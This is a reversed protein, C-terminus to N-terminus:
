DLMGSGAARSADALDTPLLWPHRTAEPGSLLDVLREANGLDEAVLLIQFGREADRRIRNLDAEKLVRWVDPLHPLGLMPASAIVSSDVPNSRRARPPARPPRGVDPQAGVHRILCM